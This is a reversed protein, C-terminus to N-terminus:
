PVTIKDLRLLSYHLLPSSVDTTHQDFNSFGTYKAIKDLKYNSLVSVDKHSTRYAIVVSTLLLPGTVYTVTYKVDSIGYWPSEILRSHQNIRHTMEKIVHLWFNHKPSSILFWNCIEGDNLEKTLNYFGRLWHFVHVQHSKMRIKKHIQHLHLISKIDAYIGGYIYMVCYRFFDARAAGVLPNIKKYADYVDLSFHNQIFQDVDNDDYLIFKWEQNSHMNSMYIDHITSQLIKTTYTQHVIMPIGLRDLEAKVTKAGSSPFHARAYMISSPSTKLRSWLILLGCVITVIMFSVLGM